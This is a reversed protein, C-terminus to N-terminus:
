EGAGYGRDLKKEIRVLHATLREEVQDIYINTAYTEAVHVRFNDLAEKNKITKLFLFGIAPFLLALAIQWLLEATM